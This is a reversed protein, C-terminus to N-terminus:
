SGEEVNIKRKAPAKKKAAPKKTVPKSAMRCRDKAWDRLKEIMQGNIVALPKTEAIVELIIETSLEKGKGFAIYLGDIIVQEIEAGTYGDTAEVLEDIDFKKPDRNRKDLHIGFIVSRDIESPLDVFFIEDFRGKRLLEPPLGTVDNSTAVIYVESTKDSMWSLLTGMVRSGTGGDTQGSSKSGSLGKEIEDIMLVCPAVAEITQIAMRMNGESAGVLSGFVAGVDMSIFPRDLIDATVKGGLTKGTGAPGVMLVGKPAPCGFDRAETTFSNKRLAIYDMLNENGGVDSRTFITDHYKLCGSKEVAKAKEKMILTWDLKKSAVVSLSVADEIETSTMGAAANVAREVDHEATIKKLWPIGDVVKTIIELIEEKLPLEYEIATVMKEIEPCLQTTAGVLVFHHNAASGERVADRFSAVLAPDVNKMFLHFDNVIWLNPYTADDDDQNAIRSRVWEFFEEPQFIQNGAQKGTLLCKVEGRADWTHLHGTLAQTVSIIDRICRFYEATTLSLAGYGANIYNALKTKM